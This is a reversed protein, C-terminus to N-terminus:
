QQLRERARAVNTFLSLLNTATGLPSETVYILDGSQIQFKGASFLGDAKTLDITFVVRDRPPGEPSPSANPSAVPRVTSLPYDRLILIGQPNARLASVGGMISLADLASVQDKPFPYLSERTVAGLSLFYRDDAEVLIRDGGQLTTDLNPEAFLRDMSVGYAKGGRFLKVRPNVLQDPVGGGQAIVSLLSVNRDALPYVGPNRVGSALTVTNSRGPAVSLQVQASPVTNLLMDQIRERATAPSMGSVKMNGVFPLFIRGDFGVQVDQLQAVRQGPNTLLSNEEADWISIKLMDGPGIIMSAPQDVQGIWPLTGTVNGPWGALLPLSARTVSFVAFDYAPKGNEDVGAKASLVENRFGAGRPLNCASLVFGLSLCLGLMFIRRFTVRM